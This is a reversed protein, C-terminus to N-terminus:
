RRPSLWFCSCVDGNGGDDHDNNNNSGGCRRHNPLDNFINDVAIPVRNTANRERASCTTAPMRTAAYQTLSFHHAAQTRVAVAV